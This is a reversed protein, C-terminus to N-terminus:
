KYRIAIPGDCEIKLGEWCEILWIVRLSASTVRLVEDGDEWSELTLEELLPAGNVLHDILHQSVYRRLTIKKFTSPNYNLHEYEIRRPDTDPDLDFHTM